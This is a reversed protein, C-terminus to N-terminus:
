NGKKRKSGLGPVSLCFFTATEPFLIVPIAEPNHLAQKLRLEIVDCVACQLIEHVLQLLKAKNWVTTTDITLLRIKQLFKTASKQASKFRDWGGMNM